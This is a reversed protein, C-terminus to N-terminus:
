RGSLWLLAQSIESYFPAQDNNELYKKARKFRDKAVKEARQYRLMDLNAGLAKDNRKRWVVIGGPLIFSDTSSGLFRGSIITNRNKASIM